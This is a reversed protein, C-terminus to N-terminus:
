VVLFKLLQALRMAATARGLTIRHIGVHPLVQLMRIHIPGPCHDALPYRGDGPLTYEPYQTLQSLESDDVPHVLDGIRTKVAPNGIVAVQDTLSATAHNIKVQWLLRKQGLFHM